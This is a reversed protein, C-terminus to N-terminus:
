LYNFPNWAIHQYGALRNTLWPHQKKFNELQKRFWNCFKQPDHLDVEVRKAQDNFLKTKAPLPDFGEHDRRLPRGIESSYVNTVTVAVLEEYEGFGSVSAFCSNRKGAAYRMAHVLEHFLIEDPERGANSNSGKVSGWQWPSYTIRSPTGKGTGENSGKPDKMCTEAELGKGAADQANQAYTTSNQDKTPNPEISVTQGTDSITKLLAWGTHRKTLTKVVNDVQDEYRKLNLKAQDSPFWTLGLFGELYVDGNISIASWQSSSRM